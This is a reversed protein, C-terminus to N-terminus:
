YIIDGFFLARLNPMRDRAGVLSEIVEEASDLMSEYHWAGIVLATLQPGGHQALFRGLMEAFDIREEEETGYEDAQSLRFVSKGPKQKRNPDDTRVPRGAFETLHKSITM